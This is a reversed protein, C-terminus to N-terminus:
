YLHANYLDGQELVHVKIVFGPNHFGSYFLMLKLGM